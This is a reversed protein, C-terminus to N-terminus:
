ARFGALFLADRTAKPWRPNIRQFWKAASSEHNRRLITGAPLQVVFIFMISHWRIGHKPPHFGDQAGALRLKKPSIGMERFLQRRAARERREGQLIRGGPVFWCGRYPVESRKVLLFERRRDKGRRVLVFDVTPIPVSALIIKYTAVPLWGEKKSTKKM